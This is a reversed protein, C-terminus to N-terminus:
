GEVKGGGVAKGKASHSLFVDYQFNREAAMTTGKVHMRQSATPALGVVAWARAAILKRQGGRDERLRGEQFNAVVQSAFTTALVREPEPDRPSYAWGAPTWVGTARELVKRKAPKRRREKQNPTTRGPQASPADGGESARRAGTLRM